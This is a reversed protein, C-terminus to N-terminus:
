SSPPLPPISSANPPERWRADEEVEAELIYAPPPVLDGRRVDQGDYANDDEHNAAAARGLRDNLAANVAVVIDGRHDGHDDTTGGGRRRRGVGFPRPPPPRGPV